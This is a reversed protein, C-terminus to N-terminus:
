SKRGIGDLECIGLWYTYLAWMIFQMILVNQYIHGGLSTEVIWTPYTFKLALARITRKYTIQGHRKTYYSWIASKTTTTTPPLVTNSQRLENLKICCWLFNEESCLWAGFIQESYMKEEFRKVKQFHKSFNTWIKQM